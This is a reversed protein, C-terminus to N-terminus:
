APPTFDIAGGPLLYLVLARGGTVTPRHASDPGYVVWGAGHGDFRAGADVPMVLDIEGAPHRHYPGALPPMDVVDVSFGHTAPGAKIVRGYRIGGAERGCMWGEAIADRCAEAVAAVVPGVAPLTEALHAALAADLPRGAASATVTAMLGAFREIGM